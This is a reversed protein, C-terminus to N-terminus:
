KKFTEPNRDQKNATAYYIEKWKDGYQDKFKKAVDAAVEELKSEAVPAEVPNPDTATAPATPTTPSVPQVPETPVSAAAPAVPQTLQAVIREQVDSAVPAGTQDKVLYQKTTPDQSVKYSIGTTADKVEQEQGPVANEKMEEHPLGCHEFIAHLKAKLDETKM